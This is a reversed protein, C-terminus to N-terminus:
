SFDELNGREVFGFRDFEGSLGPEQIACDFEIGLFRRLLEDFRNELDLLLHSSRAGLFFARAADVDVNQQKSIRDDVGPAQADRVRSHLFPTEHQFRQCFDSGTHTM